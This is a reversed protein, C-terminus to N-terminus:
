TVAAPLRWYHYLWYRRFGIKEYLHLAGLNSQEVQLYARMVNRERAAVALARLIGSAHGLGRHAPLTRMGHVGLWGYGISGVGTAVVEDSSTQMSRAYISGAARSLARVRHAGDVPDFGDGLYIQSWAADPHQTLNVVLRANAASNKLVDDIRATLVLTPQTAQLGALHMIHHVHSLTPVHAVRLSPRLGHARYRGMILAVDAVDVDSDHRLPVASHSRGVTGRDFPLLWGPIEELSEPAVAAVTAREIADIDINIDLTLM